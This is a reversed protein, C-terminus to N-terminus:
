NKQIFTIFDAKVSTLTNKKNQISATFAVAQEYSIDKAITFYSKTNEQQLSPNDNFHFCQDRESYELAKIEM